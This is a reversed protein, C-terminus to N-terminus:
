YKPKIEGDENIDINPSLNRIKDIVRTKESNELLYTYKDKQHCPIIQYEFNGDKTIRLQLIATDKDEHNFIFDGLNYIIAKQNYFDIGQLTHAHTGIIIDAGADIYKKSTEIQVQELQTSDEKGWHVLAIVFDSTKKAEEIVSLFTTPDYCRLVGGSTETAEPTLIYKEARTANVFAIKYGNIIFYYPLKAEGINKGAGIYPINYQKLAELSDQFADEGFDYIHNNALTVLDVDMEKYISLRKPSARFTYYKNPLKAGRDSITFENNAITIDDEKFINIINEDLIGLVKQKRKDYEKIIYWNDALSVDGIFNLITTDLKVNKEIVNPATDYVKNYKDLLVKLSNNTLCHWLASEYNEETISKNIEQLVKKNYNKEIWILFEETINEEVQFSLINSIIEETTEEKPKNNEQNVQKTNIKIIIIVFITIILIFFLLLYKIKRIKRKKSKLTKKSRKM